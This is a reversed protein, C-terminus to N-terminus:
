EAGQLALYRVHRVPRVRLVPLIEAAPIGLDRLQARPDAAWLAMSSLPDARDIPNWSLVREGDAAFALVDAVTSQRTLPTATIYREDITQHCLCDPDRPQLVLRSLCSPADIRVIGDPVPEGSILREACSAQWSAVLATIPASGGMEETRGCDVHWTLTPRDAPACGCAYCFGEPTFHRVEGGWPHVGADLLGQQNGSFMCRGSLAIRDAVNDLCSLVLDAARLEGLGIGYRFDDARADIEVGPVLTRLAQEAAAVKKMGVQGPSYLAGRSLNSREVTDPDCLVLRGVGAQALLRAVETGLGGVGVVIVSARRLPKAPDVTRIPTTRIHHQDASSAKV